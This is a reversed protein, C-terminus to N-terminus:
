IYKGSKPGKIKGPPTKRLIELAKEMSKRAGELDGKAQKLEVLSLYLDVDEPSKKLKEIITDENDYPTTARGVVDQTVAYVVMGFLLKRDKEAVKPGSLLSNIRQLLELAEPENGLALYTRALVIMGEWVLPNNPDMEIAGTLNDRAKEYQGTRFYACGLNVKYGSSKPDIEVMRELIATMRSYEKAELYYQYLEDMAALDDPNRGLKDLLAAEKPSITASSSPPPTKQEVAHRGSCGALVVAFVLLILIFPRSM